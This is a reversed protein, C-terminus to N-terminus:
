VKNSKRKGFLGIVYLGSGIILVMGGIELLGPVDKWVLWGLIGSFMISFYGLAAAQTAPLHSYSKTMFVQFLFSGVGIIAVYGWLYSPFSEWAAMMPFISVVLGIMFFYFLIRLMPETKSLRNVAAFAISSLLGANLAIYGATNAFDFKPKLVFIVGLFGLVLAIM